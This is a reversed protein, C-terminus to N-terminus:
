LGELFNDQHKQGSKKSLIESAKAALDALSAVVEQDPLLELNRRLGHIASPIYEEFNKKGKVRSLFSFAGLIQLNRAVKCFSLSETFEQRGSRSFKSLCDFAHNELSEKLDDPLNVYPDILLSALDYQFPGKRAGQYDIFYPKGDKVMINRSQCDRHMLGIFGKSSAGDSIYKFATDLSSDSVDLSLYNKLFADRFYQCEKELVMEKSYESTQWTWSADFGDFGKVSFIVLDSIVKKYMDMIGQQSMASEVFDALHINGLDELFVQGSFVDGEIIESVPIGKKSLHQGIKVFSEAECTADTNRIGHEALIRVGGAGSVRFWQRDSGDGKLKAYAMDPQISGFIKRSLMQRSIALYAEPTGIDEWIFKGPVFAKIEMGDSILNGYAEIISFPINRPIADLLIPSVVQIGTFALLRGDGAENVRLGKISGDSGVAVNNFRPDDHMLLTAAAGSEAHYRYIKTFDFDTFIDSNVVFFAEDAWFDEVNKIAGGTDLIVPEYVTRVDVPYNGKKIHAEIKASLHHTNVMISTCGASVLQSIIRDLMAVGAITFLPKPTVYTYPRLRTGLGAALVIAKM